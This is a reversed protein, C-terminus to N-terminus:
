NTWLIVEFLRVASFYLWVFLCFVISFRLFTGLRYAVYCVKYTKARTKSNRGMIPLFRSTLTHTAISHCSLWKIEWGSHCLLPWIKNLQPGICAREAYKINYLIYINKQFVKITAAQINIFIYIMFLCFSGDFVKVSSDACIVFTGLNRRFTPISFTKIPVLMKGRPEWIGRGVNSTYLTFSFFSCKVMNSVIIWYITWVLRFSDNTVSFVRQEGKSSFM